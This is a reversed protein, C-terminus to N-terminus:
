AASSGEQQQPAAHFETGLLTSTNPEGPALPKLVDFIRLPLAKGKVAVPPLENVIFRDKVELYTSESIIIQGGKAVNYLRAATNVHDGIVTYNLREISGLNGMVVEGTNLGMGASFVERGQAAWHTMMELIRQQQEWAAQVAEYADHPRPNPASFVAMVCDGIFKDVYGGHQFIIRCMEEFYENLQGYMQEPSLRESISTFGRIDSYFITVKVRKGKLDLSALPDDRKLMEDVIAPSVHRGFIECIVRKDAGEVVTRYLAVFLVALITAGDVHILDLRFLTHGYLAIAGLTYLVVVGIGVAVGLSARLQTVAVGAFLPLLAILLLDVGDPANTIFRRRMLQDIMRLNAFVGPYRGTPTTVFDGLAQATAGIVITKGGAFARITADDFALADVFSVTQAFPLSQDLAGARTSRAASDRALVHEVSRFPLMLMLGHGDLPVDVPGLRARHKDVARVPQGSAVSVTAAALSPYLLTRGNPEVASVVFPQGIFLGGPTDVSTTGLRAAARSLGPPPPEVGLIGSGQAVGLGLGLVTPQVRMGAAFAADAGPRPAPDFFAVDFAVVKAGGAHLRRLLRGYIARDWPFQGLGPSRPDNPPNLSPEDIAILRLDGNEDDRDPFRFTAALPGDAIRFTAENVLVFDAVRNISPLVGNPLLYVVAALVIAVACLVTAVGVIRLRRLRM